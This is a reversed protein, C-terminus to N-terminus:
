GARRDLIYYDDAPGDGKGIEPRSCMSMDWPEFKGLEETNTLLQMALGAETHWSVHCHLAWAGLPYAKLSASLQLDLYRHVTLEPLVHPNVSAM